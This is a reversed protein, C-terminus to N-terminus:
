KLLVMKRTQVERGDLLLRYFYIGSAMANGRADTGDWTLESRGAGRQGSALTRVHAGRADFIDLRTNGPRPIEFAISTIPNFPNPANAFLRAVGPAPTITAQQAEDGSAHPYKRANSRGTLGNGEGGSLVEYSEVIEDVDIHGFAAVSTDAVEVYVSRGIHPRLNWLRKDMVDSNKGTEKFLVEGSEADVLSVYCENPYNGGGVLLSMSNGQVSFTPSRMVGTKYDGFKNGPQGYGMPGTYYEYTNIWGDGVFSSPYGENRVAANNGYTPQYYFADGVVFTWSTALPLYKPVVAQNGLWIMPTFRITYRNMGHLDNYVGHRSFMQGLNTDTIQPAHGVDIVRRTNINWGSLLSDSYMQSTGFVGEETFFMHFKGGHQLIFVSELVHWSDHVYIPGIDEWNLFDDTVACAVAGKNGFTKATVFMYYRGNYEMVHPDRGHSFEDVDWLAWSPSPHYLPYPWQTWFYLDNSSSIGSQQAGASNVGTFYMLWGGSPAPQLYPAWLKEDWTGPELVPAHTQWHVFDTTTAHGINVAPNGRLYFLHYIGDQEVVCHDLIPEPPESFMAQEFDYHVLAPARAPLAVVAVAAVMICIGHISKFM